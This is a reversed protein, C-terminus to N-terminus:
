LNRQADFFCEILEAQARIRFRGAGRANVHMQRQQFIGEGILVYPNKGSRNRGDDDVPGRFKCGDLADDSLPLRMMDVDIKKLVNSTLSYRGYIRRARPRM